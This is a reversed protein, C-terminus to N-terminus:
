AIAEPGLREELYRRIDLSMDEMPAYYGVTFRSSGMGSQVAECVLWDQRNVLDWFDVADSPDFSPRAIEDPHFLFDVVVTTRDPGGPLLTFAAVHDASLSLMLNPYLLEGKHRVMEEASLGPFPARDSTGSMTFTWTGEAQPVGADWDLESGGRAKFAPVIRCLEPHVSACHYCENYNEVVVKWNARVDYVLRRATRLEALPYRVLREPVPGLQGVLSATPDDLAAPDLNAFVFGGWTAVAVPHLGFRERPFDDREGLFPARRVPGDLEYTWSHYPCRIVGKFTGAPGPAGQCSIPAPDDLVLRSGRHRCLDVHAALAGSRTRVVLIREGALDVHLYDGPSALAEQRGVCVWERHWIGSRELDHFAPDLYAARPLSPEIATRAMRRSPDAEDAPHIPLQLEAV